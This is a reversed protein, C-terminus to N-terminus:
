PVNVSHTVGFGSGQIAVNYTGPPTDAQTSITLFDTAAVTPTLTTTATLSSAFKVAAHYPLGMVELDVPLPAPNVLGVTLSLGASAGPGIPPPPPSLTLTFDPPPIPLAGDPPAAPIPTLAFPATNVEPLSPDDNYDFIGDEILSTDTTGWWSSSLDIPGISPTLTMGQTTLTKVLNGHLNNPAIVAAS